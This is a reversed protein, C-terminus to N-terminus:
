LVSVKLNKSTGNTLQQDRHTLIDLMIEQLNSFATNKKLTHKKNQKTKNKTKKDFFKNHTHTHTHTHTHIATDGTKNWHHLHKNQFLFYVFLIHYPSFLFNEFSSM